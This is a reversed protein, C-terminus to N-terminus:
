NSPAPHTVFAQVVLDTSAPSPTVVFQVRIIDPAWHGHALFENVRAVLDETATLGDPGVSSAASFETVMAHM